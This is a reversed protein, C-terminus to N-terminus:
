SFSGDNDRGFLSFLYPLLVNFTVLIQKFQEGTKEEGGLLM